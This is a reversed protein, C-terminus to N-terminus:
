NPTKSGKIDPATLVNVIYNYLEQAERNSIQSEPFAPMPAKPHRLLAIFAERSRLDASGRLPRDPRVTNGGHAHCAQCHSAFIRGGTEYTKVAAQSREGYVLRAGFWGLLVVLVFCLTYLTLTMKSSEREGAGAILSALSLIFLAGALFMKTVIPMLWAGGYFHRWDMFGFLIVPFLFLFALAICHRATRALSRWPSLAGMWSFLFAGVILGMPMHVLAAHIPDPFGFTNMLGYFADIWRDAM